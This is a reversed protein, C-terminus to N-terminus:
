LKALYLQKQEETIFGTLIIKKAAPSQNIKEIIENTLWGNKGALVLNIPPANKIQQLKDTFTEFAEILRLINKRPQLTGLM